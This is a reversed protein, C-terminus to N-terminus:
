EKCLDSLIFFVCIFLNSLLIYKEELQLQRICDEEVNWMM